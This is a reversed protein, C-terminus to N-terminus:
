WDKKQEYMDSILRRSAVAVGGSGSVGGIYLVCEVPCSVHDFIETSKISCITESLQDLESM